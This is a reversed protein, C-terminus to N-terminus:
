QINWFKVVWVEAKDDGGKSETYLIGGVQILFISAM